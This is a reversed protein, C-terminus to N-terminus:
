RLGVRQYYYDLVLSVVVLALLSAVAPTQGGFDVLLPSWVM